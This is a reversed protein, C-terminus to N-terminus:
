RLDNGWVRMTWRRGEEWTRIFNMRSRMKIFNKWQDSHAFEGWLITRDHPRLSEFGLWDFPWPGDLRSLRRSLRIVNSM